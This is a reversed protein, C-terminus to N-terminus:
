ELFILTYKVLPNFIPQCAQFLLHRKLSSKSHVHSCSRLNRLKYLGVLFMDFASFYKHSFAIYPPKSRGVPALDTKLGFHIIGITHYWICTCNPGLVPKAGTNCTLM